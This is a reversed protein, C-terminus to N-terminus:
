MGFNGRGGFKSMSKKEKIKAQFFTFKNFFPGSPSFFLQTTKYLPVFFFPLKIFFDNLHGKKTVYFTSNEKAWNASWAKSM